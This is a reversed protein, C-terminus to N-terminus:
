VKVSPDTDTPADYKRRLRRLWVCGVVFITCGVVLHAAVVWGPRYAAFAIPLGSIICAWAAFKSTFEAVGRRM